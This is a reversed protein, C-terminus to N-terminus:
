HSAKLDSNIIEAIIATGIINRGEIFDFELGVFLQGKFYESAIINIEAKVNKGPFVNEKDIFNQVGCTLMPDIPVKIDPRYGSIAPTNRGREKLTKYKLIAVYDPKLLM